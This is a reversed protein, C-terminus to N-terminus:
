NIQFLNQDDSDGNLCHNKFNDPANNCLKERESSTTTQALMTGIIDFCNARSDTAINKCYNIARDFFELSHYLLTAAIYNACKVYAERNPDDEYPRCLSLQKDLSEFDPLIILSSLALFHCKRGERQTPAKYCEKYIKDSDHKYFESFIHGLNSWCAESALTNDKFGLCQNRVEVFRQPDKTPDKIKQALGHEYLLTKFSDEMFLGNLCRYSFHDLQSCTAAAASFDGQFQLHLIHGFGHACANASVRNLGDCADMIFEPSIVFNPNSAMYGELVGHLFGGSCTEMRLDSNKLLNKWSDPNERVATSSIVHALKHCQRLDQNLLQAAFLVKAADTFDEELTLEAFENNYCNLDTACRKLINQATANINIKGSFSIGSSFIMILGVFSILTASIGFQKM